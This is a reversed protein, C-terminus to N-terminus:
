PNGPMHCADPFDGCEARSQTQRSSTCIGRTARSANSPPYSGHQQGNILGGIEHQRLDHSQRAAQTFRGNIRQEWESNRDLFAWVRDQAERAGPYREGRMAANRWPDGSFFKEYLNQRGAFSSSSADWALRMLQM